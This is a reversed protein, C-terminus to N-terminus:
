EIRTFWRYSRHEKVGNSHNVTVKMPIGVMWKLINYGYSSVFIVSVSVLTVIVVLVAWTFNIINHYIKM